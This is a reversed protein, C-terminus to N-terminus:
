DISILYYFIQTNYGSEELSNALYSEHISYERDSIILKTLGYLHVIEKCFMHAVHLADAIKKTPFSINM